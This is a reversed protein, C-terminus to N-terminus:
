ALRNAYEELVRDRDMGALMLAKRVPPDDWAPQLGVERAAKVRDQLAPDKAKESLHTDDGMFILLRREGVRRAKNQRSLVNILFETYQRSQPNWVEYGDVDYDALLIPWFQEPHPIVVGAGLSRAEEIFESTRYFYQLSFESKVIQKVAQIYLLARNILRSPFHERLAMFYESVLKNKIMIRPLEQEHAEVLRKLKAAFLSVFEVLEENAGTEGAAAERREALSPEILSDLFEWLQGARYQCTHLLMSKLVEAGDLRDQRLHILIQVKRNFGASYCDVEVGSFGGMSMLENHQTPIILERACNPFAHGLRRRVTELPIWEPHWHVALLSSQRPYTEAPNELRELQEPSLRTSVIRAFTEQDWGTLEHADM